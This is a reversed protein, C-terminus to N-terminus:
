NQKALSSKLLREVDTHLVLSEFFHIVVFCKTKFPLCYVTQATTIQLFRNCSKVTSPVQLGAEGHEYRKVGKTM